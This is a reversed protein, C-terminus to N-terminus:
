FAGVGCALAGFIRLGTARRESSRETDMSDVGSTAAAGAPSAVAFAAAAAPSAPTPAVGTAVDVRSSAWRGGWGGVLALVLAPAALLPAAGAALVGVKTEAMVVLFPMNRGDGGSSSSSLSFVPPAVPPRCLLLACSPASSSFIVTVTL